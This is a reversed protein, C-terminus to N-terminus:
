LPNRAAWEVAPLSLSSLLLMTLLALLVNPTVLLDFGDLGLLSVVGLTAPFVGMHVQGNEITPLAFSTSQFWAPCMETLSPFSYVPTSHDESETDTVPYSTVPYPYFEVATPKMKDAYFAVVQKELQIVQKELQQIQAHAKILKRDRQAHKVDAEHAQKFLNRIIGGMIGASGVAISGVRVLNSRERRVLQGADQLAAVALSSDGTSEPLNESQSAICANDHASSEEATTVPPAVSGVTGITNRAIADIQSPALSIQEGEGLMLSTSDAIEENVVVQSPVAQPIGSESHVSALITRSADSRDDEMGVTPQKACSVLLIAGVLLSGLTPTCFM